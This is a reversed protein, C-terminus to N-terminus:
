VGGFAAEEAVGQSFQSTTRKFREPLNSIRLCCMESPPLRFAPRENERQRGSTQNASIVAASKIQREVSGRHIQQSRLTPGVGREECRKKERRWSTVRMQREGSSRSLALSFVKIQRTEKVADRESAQKDGCQISNDATGCTEDTEWNLFRSTDRGRKSKKVLRAQDLKKRDWLQGAKARGRGM